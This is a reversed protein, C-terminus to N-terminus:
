WWFKNFCDNIMMGKKIRNVHKVTSNANVILSIHKTLTKAEYIRTIPKFVKVNTDKTESPVCIKTSLDDIANCRGNYNYLSIM